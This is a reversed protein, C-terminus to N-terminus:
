VLWLIDRKVLLVCKKWCIPNKKSMYAEELTWIRKSWESEPIVDINAIDANNQDKRTNLEPILVLTCRAHHYILHMQRIEQVKADHDNQDICMQDYWIYQIGFYKCLQQIFGEFKVFRTAKTKLDFQEVVEKYGLM